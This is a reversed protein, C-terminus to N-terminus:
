NKIESVKKDVFSERLEELKEGVFTAFKPSKSMFLIKNEKTCPIEEANQDLLKWDTIVFDWLEENYKQRKNDDDDVDSILEIKRDVKNHLQKKVFKIGAKKFLEKNDSDSAVRLAVYQGEMEPFYFLTSPNLDEVNWFSM